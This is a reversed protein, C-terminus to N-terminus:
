TDSSLTPLAQAVLPIYWAVFTHVDDRDPYVRALRRANAVQYRLEHPLYGGTDALARQYSAQTDALRGEVLAISGLRTCRTWGEPLAQVRQTATQWDAEAAARQQLLDYVVGRWLLQRIRTDDREHAVSQNLDALADEFRGQEIAVQARWYASSASTPDRELAADFDALARELDGLTNLYLYAGREQYGRAQEPQLAIAQTFDDMAEADRGLGYRLMGRWRYAAYATQSQSDLSLSQDFAHLAADYDHLGLATIGLWYFSLANTADLETARQFDARAALYQKQQYHIVGRWRYSLSDDPKQAIAQGLDDLAAPYNNLYYSTLGRWFLHSEEDPNLTHAQHFDQFADEYQDLQLYVVGRSALMEDLRAREYTADAEDSIASLHDVTAIAQDFDHLAQEYDGLRYAATGRAYYNKPFRQPELRIAEDLDAIAAQYQGVDISAAARRFFNESREPQRRIAESFDAIAEHHQGLRMAARGRWRYASVIQSFNSQIAHQFDTLAQHYDQQRYASRGRELYMNGLEERMRQVQEPHERELEAKIHDRLMDHYACSRDDYVEVFPYTQLQRVLQHNTAADEPQERLIGITQADLREPLACWEMIAGLTPNHQRAESVNLEFLRVLLEEPTGETMWHILDDKTTSM